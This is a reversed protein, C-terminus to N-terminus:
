WTCRCCTWRAPEVALARPRWFDALCLHRDRRQRPFTFRAREGADARPEDLVVLTTARPSPRSTATSWPPRRCCGRPPWGTSGTGCGPGARPRSWSRTRRGRGPARGACAGSAWSCRASTSWGPTSPWPSARSWAPAGSRRPRSRTTSRSTRASRCPGAAEAEAAKRRAAIRQSREHRAKREARKAEEAPDVAPATGRARAMTADM